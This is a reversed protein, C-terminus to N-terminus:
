LVLYLVFDAAIAVLVCVMFFAHRLKQIETSYYGTTGEFIQIRM